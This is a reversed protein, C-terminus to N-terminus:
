WTWDQADADAPLDGLPDVDVSSDYGEFWGARLDQVPRIHLANGEMLIDVQDGIGSDTLFVSPILIGRSNGIKRISTRM